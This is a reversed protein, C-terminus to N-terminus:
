VPKRMAEISARIRQFERDVSEKTMADAKQPSLEHPVCLDLVCDLAHNFSREEATKQRYDQILREEAPSVAIRRQKADAM